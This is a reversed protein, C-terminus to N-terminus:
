VPVAANVTEFRLGDDAVSFLLSTKRGKLKVEFTEGVNGTKDLATLVAQAEAGDLPSLVGKRRSGITNKVVEVAAKDLNRVQGDETEVSGAPPLQAKKAAREAAKKERDKERIGALEHNQEALEVSAQQKEVLYASKARTDILKKEAKALRAQARELALRAEELRREALEISHRTRERTAALRAKRTELTQATRETSM